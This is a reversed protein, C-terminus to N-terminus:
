GTIELSVNGSPGFLILDGGLALDNKDAFAQPVLTGYEGSEPLRGDTLTYVRMEPDLALDIGEVQLSRGMQIQGNANAIEQGEGLTGSLVTDTRIIPVALRVGPTRQVTGLASAEIASENALPTIQLEASGLSRQFLGDLTTAVNRNVIGTALVAAVGLAIGLLTLATRRPRARLNRWAMSALVIRRHPKV